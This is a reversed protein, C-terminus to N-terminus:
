EFAYGKPRVILTRGDRVFELGQFRVDGSVEIFSLEGQRPNPGFKIIRGDGEHRLVQYVICDQMLGTRWPRSNTVTMTETM